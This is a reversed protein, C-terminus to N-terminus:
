KGCVDSNLGQLQWMNYDWTSWHRRIFVTFYPVLPVIGKLDFYYASSYRPTLRIELLDSGEETLPDGNVILTCSRAVSHSPPLLHSPYYYIYLMTCLIHMTDKFIPRRQAFFRRPSFQWIRPVVPLHDGRTIAQQIEIRDQYQVDRQQVIDRRPARTRRLM